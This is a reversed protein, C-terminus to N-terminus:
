FEKHFVGLGVELGGKNKGVLLALTSYLQVDELLTANSNLSKTEPSSLDLIEQMRTLLEQENLFQQYVSFQEEEKIYARM